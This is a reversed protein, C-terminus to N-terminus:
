GPARPAFLLERYDPRLRVNKAYLLWELYLRETPDPQLEEFLADRSPYRASLEDVIRYESWGDELALARQVRALEPALAGWLEVLWAGARANHSPRPPPTPAFLERLGADDIALGARGALAALADVSSHRGVFWAWDKRARHGTSMFTEGIYRMLEIVADPDGLREILFDPYYYTPWLPDHERVTGDPGYTRLGRPTTECIPQDDPAFVRTSPFALGARYSERLGEDEIRRLTTRITDVDAHANGLFLGVISALEKPTRQTLGAKVKAEATAANATSTAEERDLKTVAKLFAVAQKSRYPVRARRLNADDLSLVDNLAGVYGARQLLRLEDEALRPLAYASWEIPAGGTRERLRVIREALGLAFRTGQIDLESCVFWFRRLHRALLLELDALVADLDRYRLSTGKVHPETCFFCSFPCGRMIEIPVTPPDAGFLVPHGYFRVVEDVMADTYERDPFPAYYGRQNARLAGGERYMLGRVGALDRGALLRDFSAIVDDPDGEAAYDLQLYEFLRRAHTTFGFGGAIIPAGSLDRLLTVLERNDEIPFYNRVTAPGAPPAHYDDLFVSDGQRIHLGIMRPRQADIAAALLPRWRARPVGLLDLVQVDLGARRGLASVQVFAYPFIPRWPLNTANLLLLDSM